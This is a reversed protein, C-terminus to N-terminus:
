ARASHVINKQIVLSGAWMAKTIRCKSNHRWECEKWVAWLEQVPSSHDSQRHRDGPFIGAWAWASVSSGTQLQPQTRPSQKRSSHNIGTHGGHGLWVHTGHCLAPLPMRALWSHDPWHPPVGLWVRLVGAGLVFEQWILPTENNDGLGEQQHWQCPQQGSGQRRFKGWTM